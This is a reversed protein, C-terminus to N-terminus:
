ETSGKPMSAKMVEMSTNLKILQDAVRDLKQNTEQQLKSLSSIQEGSVAQAKVNESISQLMARNADDVRTFSTWTFAYAGCVVICVPLAVSVFLDKRFISMLSIKGHTSSYTYVEPQAVIDVSPDAIEVAEVEHAAQRNSTPSFFDEYRFPPPGESEAILDYFDCVVASM